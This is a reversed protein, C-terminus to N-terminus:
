KGDDDFLEYYSLLAFGATAIYFLLEEIPFRVGGLTVWGIFHQGPFSWLNTRLAVMEFLFNLCAMYLTGKLFKLRLKPHVILTVTIPVLAFVIWVWLYAYPIVLLSPYFVLAGVFLILLVGIIKLLLTIHTHKIRHPGNDDFYEYFMVILYVAAFFWLSDEIPLLGLFRYSFVSSVFWGKDLVAIYDVIFFVVASLFSFFLTRKILSPMRFSLWLSPLGYFLILSVLLTTKFTLSIVPALILFLLLVGVDTRRVTKLNHSRM